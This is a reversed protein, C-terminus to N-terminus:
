EDVNGRTFFTFETIVKLGKLMEPPMVTETMPSAAMPAIVSAKINYKAGERALTRTFAVLGM